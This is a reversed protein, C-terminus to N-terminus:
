FLLGQLKPKGTGVCLSTQQSEYIAVKGGPLCFANQSSSGLLRFDWAYNPRGSVAALRYGVRRVIEDGRTNTSLPEEGLIQTFSEQGMAIEQDEPILLLQKRGTIPASRCGLGCGCLSTGTWIAQQIWDRRFM